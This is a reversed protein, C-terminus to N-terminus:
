NPPGATTTRVWSNQVLCNAASGAMRPREEREIAARVLDDTDHRGAEYMTTGLHEDRELALEIWRGTAAM